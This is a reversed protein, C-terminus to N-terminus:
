FRSGWYPAIWGLYPALTGHQCHQVKGAPTSFLRFIWSPCESTSMHTGPTGVACNFLLNMNWASAKDRRTATVKNGSVTITFWDSYTETGIWNEKDVRPPCLLGSATAIVTKSALKSSGIVVTTTTGASVLVLSMVSRGRAGLPTATKM